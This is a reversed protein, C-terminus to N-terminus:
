RGACGGDVRRRLKQQLELGSIGPMRLDLVACVPGQADRLAQRFDDANDFSRSPIRVSELLWMLANTVDREDDVRFVQVSTTESSM